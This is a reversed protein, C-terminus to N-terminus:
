RSAGILRGPTTRDLEDHAETLRADALALEAAVARRLATCGRTELSGLSTLLTEAAGITLDRHAYEHERIAGGIHEWRSRESDSAEDAEVWSPLTITIEVRLALAAVRCRGGSAASRWSPRVRYRTLGQALPGGEGELRMSNLRVIVGGLTSDDLTYYEERVDVHLGSTDSGTAQGRLELPAVGFLLLLIPLRRV